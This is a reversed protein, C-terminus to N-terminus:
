FQPICLQRNGLCADCPSSGIPISIMVGFYRTINHSTSSFRAQGINAGVGFLPYLLAAEQLSTTENALGWFLLSLVIDGWLESSVYFATFLWNRIMGIGGAFGSPLWSQLGDAIVHLHLVQVIACKARITALM